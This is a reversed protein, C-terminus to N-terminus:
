PARSRYPEILAHAAWQLRVCSGLARTIIPPFPDLSVCGTARTTLTAGRQFGATDVELHFDREQSGAM